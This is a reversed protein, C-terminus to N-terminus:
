WPSNDNKIKGIIQYRNDIVPEIVEKKSLYEAIIDHMYLQSDVWKVDKVISITDNGGSSMYKSTAVKYLQDIKIEEGNLNTISVVKDDKNNDIVVKLGSFFINANNGFRNEDLVCRFLDYIMQGTFESTQITENFAIAKHISYRTINGKEIKQGCSTTNFYAFDVNLKDRVADSILDGMASEYGLRMKIDEKAYAIPKDYFDKFPAIVENQFDLVKQNEKFCDHLVDIVECEKKVVQKKEDDYYLSVHPLSIGGFGGKCVAINHYEKCYDGPIHGGIFVDIPLDEVEKLCDFLEGSEDLYFPFHALIIIIDAGQQKLLPVYKRIQSVSSIIKYSEFASKEVIRDTYESTCGVIGIKLQGKELLVYPKTNKIFDNTEKELINSCLVPFLSSAYQINEDLVKKGKDFEHNGLVFCDTGIMKLGDFVKKAPWLTKNTNDGADLLLTYEPNKERVTEIAEYFRSLGPYDKDERFHGHFDAHNLIDLKIISM